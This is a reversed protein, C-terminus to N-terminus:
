KRRRWACVSGFLGVGLLAMSSPEPAPTISMSMNDVYIGEPAPSGFDIMIAFVQGYATGAPAHATVALPIWQGAPSNQDIMNSFLANGPSTEVTGLNNNAADFFTIQLGGFSAGGFPQGLLPSPTQGFGTAAWADGQLAPFQEFAGPVNNLTVLNMSNPPTLVPGTNDYHAGNFTNWGAGLDFNPDVLVNVAAQTRLSSVALTAAICAATGILRIKTKM